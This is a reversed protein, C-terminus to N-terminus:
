QGGRMLNLRDVTSLGPAFSPDTMATHSDTAKTFGWVRWSGEGNWRLEQIVVYELVDQQKPQAEVVETAATKTPQSKVMSQRSTARLVIQRVGSKSLNPLATARDSMVKLGQFNTSPKRLWKVLNWTVIQGEPRREIQSTLDRALGEGCLRKLGSIDARPFLFNPILQCRLDPLRPIGHKGRLHRTCIKIYYSQENVDNRSVGNLIM